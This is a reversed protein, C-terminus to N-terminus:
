KNIIKNFHSEVYIIIDQNNVLVFYLGLDYVDYISTYVNM